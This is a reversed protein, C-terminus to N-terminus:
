SKGDTIKEIADSAATRADALTSRWVLKRQGSARYDVVFRTVGNKITPRIRVSVGNRKIETVGSSARVKM